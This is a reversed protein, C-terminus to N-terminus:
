ANAKKASVVRVGIGRARLADPSTTKLPRPPNTLRTWHDVVARRDEKDLNGTGVAIQNSARISEQGYLRPMM